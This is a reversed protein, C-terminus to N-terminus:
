ESPTVSAELSSPSNKPSARRSAVRRWCACKGAPSSVRFIAAVTCVKLPLSCSSSKVKSTALARYIGVRREGANCCFRSRGRPWHALSNAGDPPQQHYPDHETSNDQGARPRPGSFRLCGSGSSARGNNGGPRRDYRRLPVFGAIHNRRKSHVLRQPPQFTRSRFKGGTCRAIRFPTGKKKDGHILVARHHVHLRTARNIWFAIEICRNGRDALPPRASGAPLREGYAAAKGCINHEIGSRRGGWGLRGRGCIRRCQNRRRCPLIRRCRGRGHGKRSFRRRRSRLRRNHFLLSLWFRLRRCRRDNRLGRRM